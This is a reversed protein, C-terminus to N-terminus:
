LRSPPADLLLPSRILLRCPETLGNRSAQPSRRCLAIAGWIPKPDGRARARPKCGVNGSMDRASVSLAVTLQEINSTMRVHGWIILAIALLLLVLIALALLRERM